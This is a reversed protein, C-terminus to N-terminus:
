PISFVIPVVDFCILFITFVCANLIANYPIGKPVTKPKTKDNTITGNAVLINFEVRGVVILKLGNIKM